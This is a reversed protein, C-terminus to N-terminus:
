SAEVVAATQGEQKPPTRPEDQAAGGGAGAKAEEGVAELAASASERRASQLLAVAKAKGEAVKQLFLQARELGTRTVTENTDEDHELLWRFQQRSLVVAETLRVAVVTVPSVVVDHFFLSPKKKPPAPHKPAEGGPPRDGEGPPEEAGPARVRRTETRMVRDGAKMGALVRGMTALREADFYDADDQPCCPPPCDTRRRM